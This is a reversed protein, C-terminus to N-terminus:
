DAASSDGGASKPSYVTGGLAEVITAMRHIKLPSNDVQLSIMPGGVHTGLRSVPDNQARYNAVAAFASDDNAALAKSFYDVLDVSGLSPLLLQMTPNCVAGAFKTFPHNSYMNVLHLAGPANFTFGWMNLVSAVIQVYAGGLSHGVLWINKTKQSWLYAFDLAAQVHMALANLSLGIGAADALVIDKTNATGRYALAVFNTNRRQYACAYFNAESTSALQKDDSRRWGHLDGPVCNKENYCDAAIEAFAVLMSM